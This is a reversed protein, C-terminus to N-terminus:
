SASVTDRGVVGEHWGAGARLLLAEGEPLLELLASLEVEMIEAIITVALEFLEWLEIGALAKQGLEAMATQQRAQLKLSDEMSSVQPSEVQTSRTRTSHM